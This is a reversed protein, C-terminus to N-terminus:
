MLNVQPFRKIFGIANIYNNARGHFGVIVRDKLPLDFPSGEILGFPEYKKKNTHFCLSEIVHQEEFTHHTGSISMLYEFLESFPKIYAGLADFCDGVHGYFDVITGGKMNFSFPTGKM